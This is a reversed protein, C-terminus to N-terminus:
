AAARRTTQGSQVQQHVPSSVGVYPWVPAMGVKALPVGPGLIMQELTGGMKAM